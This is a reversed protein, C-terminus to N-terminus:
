NYIITTGNYKTKSYYEKIESFKKGIMWKGIPAANIVIQQDNLGIGFCAVFKTNIYLEIRVLHEM